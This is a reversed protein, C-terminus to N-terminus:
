HLQNKNWFPIHPFWSCFTNTLIVASNFPNWQILIVNGMSIGKHINFPILTMKYSDSHINRLIRAQRYFRKNNLLTLIKFALCQNREIPWNLCSIKQTFCFLHIVQFFHFIMQKMRMAQVQLIEIVM